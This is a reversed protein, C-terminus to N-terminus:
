RTASGAELAPIMKWNYLSRLDTMVSAHMSTPLGGRSRFQDVLDLSLVGLDFPLTALNLAQFLVARPELAFPRPPHLLPCSQLSLPGPVAALLVPQPLLDVAQLAQQRGRLARAEAL